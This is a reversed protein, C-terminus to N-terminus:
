VGLPRARTHMPARHLETQGLQRRTEIQQRLILALRETVMRREDASRGIELQVKEVASGVERLLESQAAMARKLHAIPCFQEVLQRLIDGLSHLDHFEAELRDLAQRIAGFENGAPPASMPTSRLPEYAPADGPPAVGNTGHGDAKPRPLLKGNAARELPTFAPRRRAAPPCLALAPPRPLPDLHKPSHPAPAPAMRTTAPLDLAPALPPQRPEPEHQRAERLRLPLQAKGRRLVTAQQRAQEAGLDPYAPRLQVWRRRGDRHHYVAWVKRGTPFVRLRFDPLETDVYEIVPRGSPCELGAVTPEVLNVKM